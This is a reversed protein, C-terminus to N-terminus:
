CRPCLNWAFGGREGPFVAQATMEAVSRTSPAPREPFRLPMPKIGNLSVQLLSKCSILSKFNKPRDGAFPKKGPFPHTMGHPRELPESAKIRSKNPVPLMCKAVSRNVMDIPVRNGQRGRWTKCVRTTVPPDIVGIQQLIGPLHVHHSCYTWKNFLM